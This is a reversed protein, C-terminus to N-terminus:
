ACGHPTAGGGGGVGSLCGFLIIELVQCGGGWFFFTKPDACSLFSGHICLKNTTISSFYFLVSLVCAAIIFFLRIAHLFFIVSVSM